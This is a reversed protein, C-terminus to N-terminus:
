LLRLQQIVPDVGKQIIGKTLMSASTTEAARASGDSSTSASIIFLTGITQCFLAGESEHSLQWKCSSCHEVFVLEVFVILSFIQESAM